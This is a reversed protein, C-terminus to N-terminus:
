VSMSRGAALSSAIDAHRTDNARRALRDRLADPIEDRNTVLADWVKQPTDESLAAVVEDVSEMGDILELVRRRGEAEQALALDVLVEVNDGRAAANVASVIQQENLDGLYSALIPIASEPLSDVIPITDTWLDHQACTTLVKQLVDPDQMVPLAAMQRRDADNMAMAIPILTEWHDAEDAQRILDGLREAPEQAVRAAIFERQPTPLQAALPLLDLWLGQNLAVDVVATLRAEQHIASHQAIVELSDRSMARTVPLLAEWADLRDVACILGELVADGASAAVDGLRAKNDPGVSGLLDIAEAWMDDEHAARVIGPLRDALIEVVNDLRSKDELLFGIRLLDPDGMVPAAARLSADPLVGVFRGMTIHDEQDLLKQAVGAVVKAPMASILSAARRPDLQVATDALFPTPLQEAIAVGRSPEMMSAISACLLPGFAHRAAKASIAAPVLKSAAAVRKLRAADADFLRDTVRERFARLAATPLELLFDLDRPEKVDLLRALKTIEALAALQESM